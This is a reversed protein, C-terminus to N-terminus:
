GGGCWDRSYPASEVEKLARRVDDCVVFTIDAGPWDCCRIWKDIFKQEALLAVARLEQRELCAGSSYRVRTARKATTTARCYDLWADLGDAASAMPSQTTFTVHVAPPETRAKMSPTDLVKCLPAFDFNTVTARITNARALVLSNFSQLLEHRIQQCTIALNPQIIHGKNSVRAVLDSCVVYEYITDRLERPLKLLPSHTM